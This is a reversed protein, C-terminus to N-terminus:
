IDYEVFGYLLLISEGFFLKGRSRIGAKNEQFSLLLRSYGTLLCTTSVIALPFVPEPPHPTLPPRLIEFWYNLHILKHSFRNVRRATEIESHEPKWKWM